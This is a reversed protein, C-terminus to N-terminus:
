THRFGSVAFWGSFITDVMFYQPFLTMNHHRKEKTPVPFSTRTSPFIFPALYVSIRPSFRNYDPFPLRKRWDVVAATHKGENDQQFTLRMQLQLLPQGELPVFFRLMCGWDYVPSFSSLNEGRISASQLLPQCELVIRSFIRGPSYLSPKFCVINIFQGTLAWVYILSLIQQLIQINTNM